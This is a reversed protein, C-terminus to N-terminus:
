PSGKFCNKILPKLTSGTTQLVKELSPKIMVEASLYGNYGADKLATLIAHFDLHGMGPALRNSDAVHVHGIKRSAKRISEEIKPEEINMHFTDLLLKLVPSEVEELVNLSEEVTNILNTEYRNIPEFFLQVDKQESYACIKRLGKIMLKYAEERSQGEEICGRILGIVVGAELREALDIFELLRKVALERKERNSSTLSLGLHIYNLGTSLAPIELGSEALIKKVYTTDLTKPDIISIEIGDFGYRNVLTAVEELSKAKAVANFRAEELTVAVALKFL